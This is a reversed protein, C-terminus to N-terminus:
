GISAFGGGHRANLAKQLAKLRKKADAAKRNADSFVVAIEKSTRLVEPDSGFMEAVRLVEEECKVVEDVAAVLDADVGEPSLERLTDTQTRVLEVLGKLDGSAPKRSLAADVQQWYAHTPTRPAAETGAFPRTLFCGTALVVLCVPAARLLFARM